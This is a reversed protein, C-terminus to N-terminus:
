KMNIIMTVRKLHCFSTGLGGLLCQKSELSRLFLPLPHLSSPSDLFWYFLECKVKYHNSIIVVIDTTILVKIIIGKFSLFNGSYFFSPHEWGAGMSVPSNGPFSPEKLLIVFASILEAPQLM